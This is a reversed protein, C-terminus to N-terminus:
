VMGCLGQWMAEKVFELISDQKGQGRAATATLPELRGRIKIVCKDLM